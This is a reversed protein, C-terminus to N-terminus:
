TCSEEQDYFGCEGTRGFDWISVMEGGVIAVVGGM